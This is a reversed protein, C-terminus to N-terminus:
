PLWLVTTTPFHPRSPFLLEPNSNHKGYRFTPILKDGKNDEFNHCEQESNIINQM